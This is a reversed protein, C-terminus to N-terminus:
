KDGASAMETFIDEVIAEDTMVRSDRDRYAMVGAKLMAPTVEIENDAIEDRKLLFPKIKAALSRRSEDSIPYNDLVLDFFGLPSTMMEGKYSVYLFEFLIIWISYDPFSLFLFM